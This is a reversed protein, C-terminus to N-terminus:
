KSNTLNLIYSHETYNDASYYIQIKIEFEGWSSNSLSFPFQPDGRKCIKQIPNPYTGLLNYKVCVINDLDSFSPSVYITWNWKGNGLFESTNLFLKNAFSSEFLLVTLSFALIGTKLFRNVQIRRM